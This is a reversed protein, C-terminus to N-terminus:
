KLKVIDGIFITMNKTRIKPCEAPDLRYVEGIKLPMKQVQVFDQDGTTIYDIETEMYKSINFVAGPPLIIEREHPYAHYAPNVYLCPTGARLILRYMCCQSDAVMFPGLNLEPDYTTSNFPLQLVRRPEFNKPDPLDPYYGSVKWVVVDQQLKPARKIIRIMADAYDSLLNNVVESAREPNQQELIRIDLPRKFYTMYRRFPKRIESHPYSYLRFFDYAWFNRNAITAPDNFLGTNVGLLYKNVSGSGLTYRWILFQDFLPLGSVYKTHRLILDALAPTIELKKDGGPGIYAGAILTGMDKMNHM